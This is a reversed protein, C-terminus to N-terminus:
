FIYLKIVEKKTYDQFFAVIRMANEMIWRFNNADLIGKIGHGCKKRKDEAHFFRLNRLQFKGV